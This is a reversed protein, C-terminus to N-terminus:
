GMVGMAVCVTWIMLAITSLSFLLFRVPVINVTIQLLSHVVRLGVYAWALSVTCSNQQGVLYTLFALAYFITPQEMLHNYNDAAQRADAPLVDLSGPHRADQANIKAKSMAPIRKIYMWLWIVLSWAILALVPALVSQLYPVGQFM